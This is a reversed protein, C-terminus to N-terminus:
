KRRRSALFYGDTGHVGPLLRLESCGAPTLEALAPADFPAPELIDSVRELVAEGEEPFVSCVAYVLRGGPVLRTTVSRVIAEQLAGMRALDEPSLRLLIEPRRRVTGSGTCPADVLARDFLNPVSGQGQTWDVAALEPIELGLRAFEGRLSELKHPHADTAWLTGRGRLTECSLSTKTGRGACADLVCEGPRAGLAWSILQAGEEQVVWTAGRREDASLPRALEYARPAHRCPKAESWESPLAHSAALRAVFPPPSDTAGVLLALEVDGLSSRIREAFWAPVSALVADKRSAVVGSRVLNRLLANAFGAVKPGRKKRVQHVAANVAASAPVRDLLLVQYAALLLESFVEPDGSPLKRTIHRQLADCLFRHTRICGYSLESALGRERADMQPHRLLEADLARSLYAGDKLVRAVVRAAVVRASPPGPTAGVGPSDAKPM